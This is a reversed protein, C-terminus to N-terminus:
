SGWSLSPLEAELQEWTPISRQGALVDAMIQYLTAWTADRQYVCYQGETAFNQTPSTAYTCASLIGDYGKTRAFTDLRNQTKNIYDAIIASQRDAIEQATADRVAWQREWRNTNVVFAPPFEDVSQTMTDHNPQGPDFVPFVFWSALMQESPNKPFSTQPNDKRLDGITYPFKQVVQNPALVYM